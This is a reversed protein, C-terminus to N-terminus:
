HSVINVIIYMRNISNLYISILINEVLSHDIKIHIEDIIEFLPSKYYLLPFYFTAEM